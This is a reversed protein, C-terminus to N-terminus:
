GQEPRDNLWAIASGLDNYFVRHEGQGFAIRALYAIRTSPVLIAIRGEKRHVAESMRQQLLTMDVTPPDMELADYLVKRHAAGQLLLLVQEHLRGLAEETVVGRVRAVVIDGSLEVWVNEPVPQQNTAMVQYVVANHFSWTGRRPEQPRLYRMTSAHRLTGDDFGPAAREGPVEAYM